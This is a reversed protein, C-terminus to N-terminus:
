IPKAVASGLATVSGFLQCPQWTGSFDKNSLIDSLSLNVFSTLCISSYPQFNLQASSEGQFSCAISSVYVASFLSFSVTLSNRRRHPNRLSKRRIAAAMDTSQSTPDSKQENPNSPGKHPRPWPRIIASGPVPMKRKPKKM